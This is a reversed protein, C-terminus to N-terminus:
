HMYLWRGQGTVKIHPADESGKMRVPEVDDILQEM